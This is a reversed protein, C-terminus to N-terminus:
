SFAYLKLFLFSVKNFKQDRLQITENILLIMEKFVDSTVERDCDWFRVQFIFKCVTHTHTYIQIGPQNLTNM